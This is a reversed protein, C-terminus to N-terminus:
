LAFQVANGSRTDVTVSDPLWGVANVAIVVASRQLYHVRVRGELNTFTLSDPTLQAYNHVLQVSPLPDGTLANVMSVRVDGPAISTDASAGTRVKAVDSADCRPYIAGESELWTRQPAASNCASAILALAAAATVALHRRSRAQM